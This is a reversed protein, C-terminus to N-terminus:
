SRTSHSPLSTKTRWLISSRSRQYTEIGTASLPLLPVQDCAGRKQGVIVVVVAAMCLTVGQTSLSLPFPSKISRWGSRSINVAMVLVAASM